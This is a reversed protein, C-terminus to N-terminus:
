GAASRQRMHLVSMMQSYVRKRLNLYIKTLLYIVVLPSHISLQSHTPQLANKM